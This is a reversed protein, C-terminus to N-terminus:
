PPLQAFVVRVELGRGMPPQHLSVRAGHLDAIAKVIALGLGTGGPESAQESAQPGRYFRSFVRDHEAEPIGPGSDVVRLM